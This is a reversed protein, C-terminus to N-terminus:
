ARRPGAAVRDRHRRPGRPRGWRAAGLWAPLDDVPVEPRDSPSAGGEWCAETVVVQRRQDILDVFCASAGFRQGVDRVLTQLERLSQRPPRELVRGAFRGALERLEQRRLEPRRDHLLYALYVDHSPDSRETVLQVEVEVPVLDGTSLSRVTRTGIWTGQTLVSDLVAAESWEDLPPFYLDRINSGLLDDPEAGCLEGAARNAYSIAGDLDTLVAGSSGREIISQFRAREAELARRATLDRRLALWHTVIGKDDVVPSMTIECPYASGDARRAPLVVSEPGGTM